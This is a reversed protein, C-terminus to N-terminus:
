GSVNLPTRQHDYLKGRIFLFSFYNCLLKDLFRFLLNNEPGQGIVRQMKGPNGSANYCKIWGNCVWEALLAFSTVGPPLSNACCFCFLRAFSQLYAPYLEWFYTKFFFSKSFWILFSSTMAKLFAQSIWQPLLNYSYGWTKDLESESLAGDSCAQELCTHPGCTFWTFVKNRSQWLQRWM